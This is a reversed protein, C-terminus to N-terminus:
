CYMNSCIDCKCYLTLMNGGNAGGNVGGGGGDPFNEDLIVVETTAGVVGPFDCGSVLSLM